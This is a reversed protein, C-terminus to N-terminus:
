NRLILQQPFVNERNRARRKKLYSVVFLTIKTVTFFLIFGFVAGIEITAGLQFLYSQGFTEILCESRYYENIYTVMLFVPLIFTVFSLLLNELFFDYYARNLKAQDINKALVRGKEVDSHRVAEERVSLWHNFDKELETLRKTKVRKKLFGTVVVTCTALIFIQVIPGLFNFLSMFSNMMEALSIIALYMKEWCVDLYHEM